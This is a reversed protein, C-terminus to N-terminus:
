RLRCDPRFNPIFLDKALAYNFDPPVLACVADHFEAPDVPIRVPEHAGGAYRVEFTRGDDSFGFDSVQGPTIRRNIGAQKGTDMDWFQVNSYEDLSALWPRAPSFAVQKPVGRLFFEVGDAGNALKGAAGRVHIEKDDGGTAVMEGKASLAISDIPKESAQSTVLGAKGADLGNVRWLWLKNDGDAAAIFKGDRSIAIATVETASDKASGAVSLQGVRLAKLDVVRVANPEIRIAAKGAASVDLRDARQPIPIRRLTGDSGTVALAPPDEVKVGGREMPPGGEDNWSAAAENKQAETKWQVLRMDIGLSFLRDGKPSFALGNVGESHAKLVRLSPQEEPYPAKRDLSWVRVAYDSDGEALMTGTANFRISWAELDGATLTMARGADKVPALHARQHELDIWAVWTGTPDVLVRTVNDDPVKSAYRRRRDDVITYFKAQGTTGSDLFWKPPLEQRFETDLSGCGDPPHAAGAKVLVRKQLDAKQNVPGSQADLYELMLDNGEFWICEAYQGQQQFTSVYAPDHLTVGFLASEADARAAAVADAYLWGSLRRQAVYGAEDEAELALVAASDPEEGALQKAKEALQEVLHAESDAEQQLSEVYSYGMGAFATLVLAGLWCRLWMARWSAWMYDKEFDLMEARHKRVWSQGAWLRRTRLLRDGPRKAADWAEAERQVFHLKARFAANSEIVPDVLRDHTLERTKHHSVSDLSRVVHAAELRDAAANPLGGTDAPGVEAQMRVKSQSILKKEFWDRITRETVGSKDAVDAAVAAYYDALATATSFKAGGSTLMAATIQTTGEPLEDWLRRCVVQLQVPEVTDSGAALDAALTEVAADDITVVGTSRIGERIVQEVARQSLVSIRMRSSILQPVWDMYPDLPALYDERVAFVILRGPTQLVAGLQRFFARREALGAKDAAGATLVEEFQDLVLLERGAPAPLYEALEKRSDPTIGLSRLCSATYRNMDGREPVDFSVRITPRSTDVRGMLKPKVGAELLSSKGAGSPSYLLVFRDAILRNVLEATEKARGFLGYKASLPVPGPFPSEPNTM